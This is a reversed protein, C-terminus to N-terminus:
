LKKEVKCRGKGEKGKVDERGKGEKGKVDERGKRGTVERGELDSGKWLFLIYFRREVSM